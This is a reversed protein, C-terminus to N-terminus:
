PDIRMLQGLPHMKPNHVVESLHTSSENKWTSFWLIRVSHPNKAVSVVLEVWAGSYFVDGPVVDEFKIDSNVISRLQGM